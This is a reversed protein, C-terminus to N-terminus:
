LVNVMCRMDEGFEPPDPYAYSDVIESLKRGSEPMFSLIALMTAIGDYVFRFRPMMVAGTGEGAVDLNPDSNRLVDNGTAWGSAHVSILTNPSYKRAMSVLCAGMGALAVALQVQLGHLRTPAM